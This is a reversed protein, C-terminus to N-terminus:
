CGAGVNDIVTVPTASTGCIAALKCSGANTGATVFFQCTAAGPATTPAGTLKAQNLYAGLALVGTQDYTPM